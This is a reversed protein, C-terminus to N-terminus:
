VLAGLFQVSTEHKCLRGADSIDALQSVIVGKWQRDYQDLFGIDKGAAAILLSRLNNKETTTLAEFSMNLTKLTPWNANKFAILVNGRTRRIIANTDLSISNSFRPLRVFVTTTPTVYPYTFRVNSRSSIAPSPVWDSGCINSM